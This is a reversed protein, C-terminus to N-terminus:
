VFFIVKCVWRKDILCPLSLSSNSTVGTFWSENNELNVIEVGMMPSLSIDTKIEGDALYSSDISYLEDGSDVSALFEKQKELVRYHTQFNGVDGIFGIYNNFLLLLIVVVGISLPILLPLEENM